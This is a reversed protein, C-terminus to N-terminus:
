STVFADFTFTSAESLFSPRSEAPQDIDWCRLPKTKDILRIDASLSVGFVRGTSPGTWRRELDEWVNESASPKWGTEPPRPLEKVKGKVDIAQTLGLPDSAFIATGRLGVLLRESGSAHEDLHPLVFRPEIIPLSGTRLDLTHAEPSAPFSFIVPRYM